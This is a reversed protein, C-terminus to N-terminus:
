TWSRGGDTSHAVQQGFWLWVTGDASSIAVQGAAAEPAEACGRVEPEAAAAVVQVGTACDPAGLVALLFGDGDDALAVAGPVAAEQQWSGAADSTVHVTGDACLAGARDSTVPALDVLAGPCPGPHDGSPSHVADVTLHWAVPLSGPEARWDTGSDTQLFAPDCGEGQAVVLFAEDAGSGKVRLVQGDAWVQQWSAGADTTREVTGTGGPCSGATARWATAGDVADLMRALRVGAPPAPPAPTETPAPAADTTETVAPESAAPEPSASAASPVVAAAGEPPGSTRNLALVVLVIDVV